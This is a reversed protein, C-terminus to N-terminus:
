LPKGSFIGQGEVKSHFGTLRETLKGSGVMTSCERVSKMTFGPQGALHAAITEGLFKEGYARRQEPQQEDWVLVRVARPTAAQLNALATSLFALLIFTQQM